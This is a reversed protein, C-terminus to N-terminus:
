VCRSTYLLCAEIILDELGTDWREGFKTCGMGIIALNDKFGGEAFYKM